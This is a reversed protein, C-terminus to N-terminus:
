SHTIVTGGHGDGTMGFSSQAYTGSFNLSLSAGGSEHVTLTQGSYTLSKGLVKSLDIRDGQIFDDITGAFSGPAGLVLKSTASEFIADQGASVSGGLNLTSAAEIEFEGSGVVGGIFSLTGGNAQVTASNITSSAEVTGYGSLLQAADLTLTKAVDLTGGHLLIQGNKLEATGGASVQGGFGITVNASGADGFQAHGSITLNAGTGYVTLSGTGTTAMLLSAATVTSGTTIMLSGTGADGIVLDSGVAWHSGAGTVSVTGSGFASEGLIAGDTGSGSPVTTNVVGGSSITLKGSGNMGVVFEGRNTLTSGAGRIAATGSGGAQDGLVFGAVGNSNGTELSAGAAVLVAGTGYYGVDFEGTATWNSGTGTITVSGMYFHGVTVAPGSVTSSIIDGGSGITVMGTADDGVILSAVGTNLTSGTGSVLISGSEPGASGLVDVGSSDQLVQAGSTIDLSGSEGYYRGGPAIAYAGLDLAGRIELTSGAGEVLVRSAGTGDSVGVELSGLEAFGAKAITLSGVGAGGGIAADGATLRSGPGSVLVSASGGTAAEVDLGLASAEGGALISLTGQDVQIEGGALLASFSGTVTLAGQGGTTGGLIVSGEDTKLESGSGITLAGFGADGIVASGAVLEVVTGFGALNFTSHDGSSVAVDFSTTGPVSGSNVYLDSGGSLSVTSTGTQEVDGDIAYFSGGTLAVRGQLELATTTIKQGISALVGGTGDIVLTGVDGDGTIRGATEVLATDATGPPGSTAPSTEDIWNGSFGFDGAGDANVFEYTNSM